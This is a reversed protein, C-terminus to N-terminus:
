GVPVEPDPLPGVNLLYFDNFGEGAVVQLHGRQVLELLVLFSFILYMRDPCSAAYTEFALRPNARLTGYLAGRVQEVTYPYRQIVHRPAEQQTQHRELLRQYTKLLQYLSLGVLEDTPHQLLGVAQAIDPQAYGRRGWGSTTEELAELHQALRKYRRFALLREALEQRPDILEGEPTVQMRPLLMAAKIKMLKAAMLIFEGGLDINLAEAAALYALFDATLQTIPIDHIDLEDREIFFLLLDFPGEFQPLQVTYTTTEM